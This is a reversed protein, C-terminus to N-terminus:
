NSSRSICTGIFMRWSVEKHRCCHAREPVLPYNQQVPRRVIGLPIEPQQVPHPPQVAPHQMAPRNSCRTPLLGPSISFMRYCVPCDECCLGRLDWHWYHCSQSIEDICIVFYESDLIHKRILDPNLQKQSLFQSFYVLFRSWCEYLWVM